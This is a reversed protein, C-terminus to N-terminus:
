LNDVPSIDKNPFRYDTFISVLNIGVFYTKQDNSSKIKAYYLFRLNLRSTVEETERGWGGRTRLSM